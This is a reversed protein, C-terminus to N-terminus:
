QGLSDSEVPAGDHAAHTCFRVAFNSVGALSVSAGSQEPGM